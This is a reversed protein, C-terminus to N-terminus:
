HYILEGEIMTASFPTSGPRLCWSEWHKSDLINLNAIAGEQIRGHVLGSPHPSTEASNRTCAALSALPDIECRQVLVSGLFPLSLTQCNPNFDSAYSWIWDEDLYEKFDPFKDGMSYPTGPLFGVNVGAENMKERAALNTRHAHDASQVRLDAALDGGGGDVFEDIHIRLDLGGDRSQKLIEESQEVSFWGPECFVDASRAIGQEIIAPLQDSLLEETYSDIDHNPPSAHAGLWTLDLSPLGEFKGLNAAVDLLRLETETDLGYGSKAELHTTGNRLAERLREVGLHTLRANSADRTAMVTSVIGGGSDAIQKYSMGNQKWRVERSRDGDWLLHTHTDVLGPIVSKGELDVKETSNFEEELEATPSIQKIVHDEILISYGPEIIQEDDLMNNGTLPGEGAFHVIPGANVLLRRMYPRSLM